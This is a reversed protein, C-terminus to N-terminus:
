PLGLGTGLTQRYLNYLASMDGSSITPTLAIAFSLTGRAGTAGPTGLMDVNPTGTPNRAALGTQEASITGNLMFQSSTSALAAGFYNFMTERGTIDSFSSQANASNRTTMVFVQKNTNSNFNSQWYNGQATGDQCNFTRQSDATVNSKYCSFVSLSGRLTANTGNVNIIETANAKTIGDAGWTPGNVRTGNFTGLGGLSYVTDGTGANQSSRLPWCVMSNWLGLEKVGKVFASLAAVDTAGSAAAFATADADYGRAPTNLSLTPALIM